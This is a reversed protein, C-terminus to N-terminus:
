ELLFSLSSLMDATLSLALRAPWRAALSLSTGVSSTLMLPQTVVIGPPAPDRDGQLDGPESSM